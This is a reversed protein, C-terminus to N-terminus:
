WVFTDFDVRPLRNKERIERVFNPWDEITIKAKWLSLVTPTGAAERSQLSSRLQKIAAIKMNPNINGAADLNPKMATFFAEVDAAYNKVMGAINVMTDAPLAFRSIVLDRIENLSLTITM